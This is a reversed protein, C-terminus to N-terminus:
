PALIEVSCPLIQPRLGGADFLSSIGTVALYSGEPYSSPADSSRVVVNDAVVTTTGDRLGSGDDIYFYKPESTQRQTVKGYARVFLGINNPGLAGLVGPTLANFQTGGLNAGSLSLPGPAGPGPTTVFAGCNSGDLYREAGSGQLLGAVEVADGPLV